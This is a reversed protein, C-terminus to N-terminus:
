SRVPILYSSVSREYCLLPISIKQTANLVHKRMFKALLNRYSSCFVYVWKVDVQEFDVIFVDSRREQRREPTKITLETCM